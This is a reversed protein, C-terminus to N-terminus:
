SSIEPEIPHRQVSNQLRDFEFGLHHRVPNGDRSREEHCAALALLSRPRAVGFSDM